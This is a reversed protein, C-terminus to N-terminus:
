DVDASGLRDLAQYVPGAAPLVEHYVAEPLTRRCDVAIQELAEIM